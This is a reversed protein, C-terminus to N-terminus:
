GVDPVRPHDGRLARPRGRVPREAPDPSALELFNSRASGLELLESNMYEPLPTVGRGTPGGWYRDRQLYHLVLDHRYPRLLLETVTHEVAVEALYSLETLQWFLEDAVRVGGVGGEVKSM